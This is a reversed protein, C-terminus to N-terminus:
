SGIYYYALTELPCLCYAFWNSLIIHVHLWFSLGGIFWALLISPLFFYRWECMEMPVENYYACPFFWLTYGRWLYYTFWKLANHIHVHLWCSNIDFRNFNSSESDCTMWVDWVNVENYDAALWILATIIHVHLWCSWGDIWCISSSSADNM